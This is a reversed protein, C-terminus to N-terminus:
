NKQIFWELMHMHLVLVTQIQIMQIFCLLKRKEMLMQLNMIDVMLRIILTLEYHPYAGGKKTIDDGVIWQRNPQQSRPIGALEKAYRLAARTSSFVQNKVQLGFPDFLTCPDSVYGYLTPNNGALGIPDQQTYMGEGNKEM